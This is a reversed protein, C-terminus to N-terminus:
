SGSARRYSGTPMGPPLALKEIRRRCREAAIMAGDISTEPLIAAFEEGGYRAVLDCSRLEKKLAHAVAVLVEDGALHGCSDNINKFHDIDAILLGVPAGNREARKLERALEEKFQLRNAVGTLYDTSALRLLQETRQKLQLHVRCRAVLEQDDFPKVLYDSGGAELCRVKESIEGRATLLIVPVPVPEDRERMVSLVKFGDLGPMILDCLVLDIPQASLIQLAQAGNDATLIRDAVRARLLTETVHEQLQPSDDVILVTAM